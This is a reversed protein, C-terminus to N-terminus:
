ATARATVKASAKTRTALTASTATGQRASITATEAAAALATLVTAAARSARSAGVAARATSRATALPATACGRVMNADDLHAASDHEAPRRRAARWGAAGPNPRRGM